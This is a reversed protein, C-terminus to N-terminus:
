RWDSSLVIEADTEKLVENFVIVCEKDFPYAFLEHNPQHASEETALVGDIDLLIINNVAMARRKGM